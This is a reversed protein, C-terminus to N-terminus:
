RVELHLFELDVLNTGHIHPDMAQSDVVRKM